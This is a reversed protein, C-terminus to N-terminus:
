TRGAGRGGDLEEDEPLYLIRGCSHCFVLGSGAMLLNVTNATLSMRCQQCVFNRCAALAHGGKGRLLREYPQIYKPIIQRALEAREESIRTIRADADELGHAIAQKRRAVEEEAAAANRKLNEIRKEQQEAEVMMSIIEDEIKSEEEKANLIEHQIASYEKNTKVANLQTSLRTIRAEVSKLDVDRKDVFIKASRTDGVGKELEQQAKEAAREVEAADRVLKARTARLKNITEDLAQLKILQALGEM